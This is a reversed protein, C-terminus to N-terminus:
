WESDEMLVGSLFEYIEIAEDKSLSINEKGVDISLPWANGRVESWKFCMFLQDPDNDCFLELVKSRM